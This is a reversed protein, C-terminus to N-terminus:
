LPRLPTESATASGTESSPAPPEPEARTRISSTRSTRFPYLVLDLLLIALRAVILAAALSGFLAGPSTALNKITVFLMPWPAEHGMTLAVVGPV